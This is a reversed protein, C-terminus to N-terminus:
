TLGARRRLEDLMESLIVVIDRASEPVPGSVGHRRMVDFALACAEDLAERDLRADDAAEAVVALEAELRAVQARLVALEGDDVGVM